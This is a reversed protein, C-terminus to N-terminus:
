RSWDIRDSLDEWRFEYVKSFPVSLDAVLDGLEHTRLIDAAIGDKM